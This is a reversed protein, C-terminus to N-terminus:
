KLFLGVIFEGSEKLKHAVEEFNVDMVSLADYDPVHNPKKVDKRLPIQMSQSFALKGEVERSLIYDILKRAEDPHPSNKILCVTNPILCKRQLTKKCIKALFVYV